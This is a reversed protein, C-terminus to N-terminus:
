TQQHARKIEKVLLSSIRSPSREAREIFVIQRKLQPKGFATCSLGTAALRATDVLPLVAIGLGQQVLRIATDEQELEWINSCDINLRKLEKDIAKALARQETRRIVHRRSGEPKGIQGRVCDVMWLMEDFLPHEVLRVSTASMSTTIAADLNGSEVQSALAEPAGSFLSIRLKPHHKDFHELVSPLVGDFVTSISGLRIHGSLPCSDSLQSHINDYIALIQQAGEVLTRGAPTLSISRNSRDFLTTRFERELQLM